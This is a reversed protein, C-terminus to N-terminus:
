LSNIYYGIAMLIFFSFYMIINLIILWKNKALFGFAIGFPAVVFTLLWFPSPIQFIVNPIWLLICVLFCIFALSKFKNIKMNM